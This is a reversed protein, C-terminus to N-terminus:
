RTSLNRNDIDRAWKAWQQQDNVWGERVARAWESEPIVSLPRMDKSQFMPKERELRAQALPADELWEECIEVEDTMACYRMLIRKYANGAADRHVKMVRWDRTIM